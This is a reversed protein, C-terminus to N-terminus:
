VLGYCFLIFSHVDVYIYTHSESINIYTYIDRQQVASILVNYFLM